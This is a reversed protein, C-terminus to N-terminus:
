GPFREESFTGDDQRVLAFGTDEHWEPLVRRTAEHGDVVMTHTAPRHTHGHILTNADHRRLYDAVTDPNVDMIDEALLSTAEGSKARYSAALAAREALDRALFDAIFAPDRLMQRAQQYGVDDTCLLDGHMLLIREGAHEIVHTEDILRCGTAQLFAEGLLFDRNGHQLYVETGLETLERLGARVQEALTSPDDDGIWADFLDGLIYLAGARPARRRLFDLFLALTGPREQALHLDSIFLTDSM